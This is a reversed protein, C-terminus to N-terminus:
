RIGEDEFDAETADRSIQYEGSMWRYLDAMRARESAFPWTPADPPVMVGTIPCRVARRAELESFEPRDAWHEPTHFELVREHEGAHELTVRAMSARPLGGLDEGLREPWEVLMAADAREGLRALIADWGLTELEDAGSLRYADMHLLAPRGDASPREYEHVMVFTPSAVGGTAVGLGEAIARSLTTKGAGLTGELLVV